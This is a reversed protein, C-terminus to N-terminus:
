SLGLLVKTELIALFILKIMYRKNRKLYLISVFKAAKEKLIAFLIGIIGFPIVLIGCLWFGINMNYAEKVFVSQVLDSRSPRHPSYHM